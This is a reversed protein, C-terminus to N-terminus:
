MIFLCTYCWVSIVQRNCAFCLKSIKRTVKLQELIPFFRKGLSQKTKSISVTQLEYEQVASTGNLGNQLAADPALTQTEGREPRRSGSSFVTSLLPRRHPAGGSPLTFM